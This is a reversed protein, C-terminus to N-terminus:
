GMEVVLKASSQKGFGPHLQSFRCGGAIIVTSHCFAFKDQFLKPTTATLILGLMSLKYRIYSMLLFTKLHVHIDTSM